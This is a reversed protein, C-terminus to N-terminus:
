YMFRFTLYAVQLYNEKYSGAVADIRLDFRSYYFYKGLPNRNTYEDPSSIPVSFDKGM